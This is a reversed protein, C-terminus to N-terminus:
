GDVEFGHGIDDPSVNLATGGHSTSSSFSCVNRLMLALTTSILYTEERSVIDTKGSTKKQVWEAPVVRLGYVAAVKLRDWWCM